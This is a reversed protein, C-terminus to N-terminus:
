PINVGDKYQMMYRWLNERISPTPSAYVASCLWEKQGQKVKFTVMQHFVDVLSCVNSSINELVWIGGSRGQAESIGVVRYGLRRWFTESTAFAVHTELVVFVTPHFRHVLEKVHRHGVKNAAGRINWSLIKLDM